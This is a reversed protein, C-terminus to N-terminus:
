FRPPPHVALPPAAPALAGLRAAILPHHADATALDYGHMFVTAATQLDMVWAVRSDAKSRRASAKAAPPPVPM